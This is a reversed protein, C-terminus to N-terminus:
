RIPLLNHRHESKYPPHYQFFEIIASLNAFATNKTAVTWDTLPFIYFFIRTIPNKWKLMAVVTNWVEHCAIVTEEDGEIQELTHALVSLHLAFNEIDETRLKRGSLRQIVFLVSFAHTNDHILRIWARVTRLAARKEPMQKAFAALKLEIDTLRRKYYSVMFPIVAWYLAIFFFVLSSLIEATWIIIGSTM